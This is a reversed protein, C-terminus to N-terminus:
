RGGRINVIGGRCRSGKVLHNAKHLLFM